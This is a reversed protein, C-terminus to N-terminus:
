PEDLSLLALAATSVLLLLLAAPSQGMPGVPTPAAPNALLAFMLFAALLGLLGLTFSNRQKLCSKAHRFILLASLGMVFWSLLAQLIMFSNPPLNLLLPLGSALSMLFPSSYLLLVAGVIILITLLIAPYTQENSSTKEPM